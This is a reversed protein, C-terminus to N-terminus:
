LSSHSLVEELKKDLSERRLNKAIIKGEKDILVGMPIGSIDYTKVVKSNWYQLDSVHLWELGDEQIAKLWAEKKKDLSVGLIEFGKQKFHHYTKVLYPNEERCPKCWSAWFDILVIKGKLSSLLLTKGEPTSMQIDPAQEGISITKSRNNLTCEQIFFSYVM